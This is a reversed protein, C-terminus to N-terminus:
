RVLKCKKFIITNNSIGECLGKVTIIDGKKIVEIDETANKPFECSVVGDSAQVQFEIVPKEASSITINVVTGVIALRKDKYKEDATAQNKAYESFLYLIDLAQVPDKIKTPHAKPSPTNKSKPKIKNHEKSKKTNLQEQKKTNPQKTTQTNLQIQKQTNQQEQKKINLQDKQETNQPSAESYSSEEWFEQQLDSEKMSENIIPVIILLCVITVGVILPTIFWWNAYFKKKM